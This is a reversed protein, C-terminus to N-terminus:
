DNNKQASLKHYAQLYQNLRDTDEPTIKSLRTINLNDELDNLKVKISLPHRSVREIFHAYREGPQKTIHQLAQLINDSFGEKQLDEFTWETDEILDHLIGCIKEEETTGKQMVRLLHLIYPAGAKDKQGKHAQTAIQIAKELM